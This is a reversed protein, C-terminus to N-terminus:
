EERIAVAPETKMARWAPYLISLIIGLGVVAITALELWLLEINTFEEALDTKKIIIWGVVATLIAAGALLIMGEGIVRRFIAGQSAGCVRRIAIESIRQQMRFWFTGLLGLFIIILLFSIIIINLRVELVDHRENIMGKDSLKVLSHLYTNRRSIMEPTTEFEKRFKEGCGPKVRILINDYYILNEREDIPKIVGGGNSKNFRNHRVLDVVDAVRYHETTDWGHVVKGNLEEALHIKEGKAKIEHEKPDPSVFIEGKELSKRLFDYDKGTRSKLRLVKVVDPSMSRENGYFQLTDPRPSTLSLSSGWYFNEYPVANSSFGAAEVNQSKRIIAILDRRDDSNRKEAEEGFDVYKPSNPSLVGLTVVYVDESEFGLPQFYSRLISLLASSFFWIAISVVTLGIVLWFNERWDNKMQVLLNRKM